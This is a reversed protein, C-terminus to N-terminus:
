SNHGRHGDDFHDRIFALGVGLLGVSREAILRPCRERSESVYGINALIKRARRPRIASAASALPAWCRLTVARAASDLDRRSGMLSDKPM